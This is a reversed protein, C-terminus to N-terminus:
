QQMKHNKQEIIPKRQEDRIASLKYFLTFYVGTIRYRIIMLARPYSLDYYKFPKTSDEPFAHGRPSPLHSHMVKFWVVFVWCLTM